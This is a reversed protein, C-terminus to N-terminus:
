PQSREAWREQESWAVPFPKLLKALPLNLNRGDLLDEVIAPALLSLRLVRGLYSPNIREADAMEEISAYRGSELLKNWRFSRALASVAADHVHATSRGFVSGEPTVVVRRGGRKRITLPIRVTLTTGIEDGSIANKM